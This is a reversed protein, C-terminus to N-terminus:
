LTDTKNIKQIYIDPHNGKGIAYGYVQWDNNEILFDNVSQVTGYYEDNFHDFIMYDNIGVITNLKSHNKCFELCEKMFEYKHNADLYIYDYTKDIQKISPNFYEKIININKSNKYKNIIFNYHTEKTFRKNNQQNWDEEEYPDLLDVVNPSLYNIVLDSYDGALVGIELYKDIKHYKVLFDERDYYLKANDFMSQSLQKPIKFDSMSM